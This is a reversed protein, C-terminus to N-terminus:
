LGFSQFSSPRAQMVSQNDNDIVCVLAGLFEHM